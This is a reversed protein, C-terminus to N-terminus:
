PRPHVSGLAKPTCGKRRADPVRAGERAVPTGRWRCSAGRSDSAPCAPRFSAGEGSLLPLRMSRAGASPGGQSSSHRVKLFAHCTRAPAPWHNCALVATLPRFIWSAPFLGHGAALCPWTRCGSVLLFLLLFVVALYMVSISCFRNPTPKPNQCPKKGQGM